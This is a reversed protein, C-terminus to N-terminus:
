RSSAALLKPRSPTFGIERQAGPCASRRRVPVRPYPGVHARSRVPHPKLDLEESGRGKEGAGVILEPELLRKCRSDAAPPHPSYEVTTWNSLTREGEWSASARKQETVHLRRGSKFRPHLNQLGYLTTLRLAQSRRRTESSARDERTNPRQQESM